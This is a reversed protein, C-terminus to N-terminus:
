KSTLSIVGKNFNKIMMEELETESFYGVFLRNWLAEEQHYLYKASERVEVLSMINDVIDFSVLVEGSGAVERAGFLRYHKDTKFFDGVYSLSEWFGLNLEPFRIGFRAIAREAKFWHWAEPSVHQNLLRPDESNDKALYRQIILWPIKNETIPQSSDPVDGRLLSAFKSDFDKDESYNRFLNSYFQVEYIYHLLLSFVRATEGPTDIKLPIVFIVGLEKLHSVNHYKKKIFKEAVELWEKHLVTIEIPRWEFDDETIGTYAKAFFAHMWEQSEVFRLASFVETIKKQSLLEEVGSFGFSAIMNKPPNSLLMEAAKDKKLVWVKQPQSIERAFNFLTKLGEEDQGSPRRFIEYLGLDTAKLERILADYIVEAKSDKSVGLRSLAEAMKKDNKRVVEEVVGKRTTLRVMAEDLSQLLSPQIRLIKSLREYSGM